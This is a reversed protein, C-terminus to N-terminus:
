IPGGEADAQLQSKSVVLFRPTDTTKALRGSLDDMERRVMEEKAPGGPLGAQSMVIPSANKPRPAKSSVEALSQSTDPQEAAQMCQSDAWAEVLTQFTVNGTATGPLRCVKM